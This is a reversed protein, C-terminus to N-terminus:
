IIKMNYLDELIELDDIIKIISEFDFRINFFWNFNSRFRRRTLFLLLDDFNKPFLYNGNDDCILKVVGHYTETDLGTNGFNSKQQKPMRSQQRINLEDFPIHM